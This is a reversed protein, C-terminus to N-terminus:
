QSRAAPPSQSNASSRSSRNARRAAFYKDRLSNSDCRSSSRCNAPAAVKRAFFFGRHRHQARVFLKAPRQASVAEERRSSAGRLKGRRQRSGVPTQPPDRRETAPLNQVPRMARHASRTLVAGVFVCGCPRVALRLVAFFGQFLVGPQVIPIRVQFAAGRLRQQRQSVRACKGPRAPM